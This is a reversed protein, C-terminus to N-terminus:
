IKKIRKRADQIMRYLERSQTRPLLHFTDCNIRVAEALFKLNDRQDKITDNALIDEIATELQEKMKEFDVLNKEEM